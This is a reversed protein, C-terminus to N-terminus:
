RRYLERALKCKLACVRVHRPLNTIFSTHEYRATLTCKACALGSIKRSLQVLANLAQSRQVLANLVCLHMLTSEFFM